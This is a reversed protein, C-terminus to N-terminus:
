LLCTQIKAPYTNPRVIKECIGELCNISNKPTEPFFVSMTSRM